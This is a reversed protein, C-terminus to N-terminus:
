TDLEYYYLIQNVSDYVALTYNWSGHDEMATPDTNKPHRNYFYWNGESIRPIVCNDNDDRCNFALHWFEPPAPLTHWNESDPLIVRGSLETYTEGDGHFGGHTEWSRLVSGRLISIQLNQSVAALLPINEGSVAYSIGNINLIDESKWELDMDQAYLFEGRWVETSDEFCGLLIPISKKENRVTVITAGGLAGQDSITLIATYGGAPSPYTNVVNDTRMMQVFGWIPLILALGACALASLGYCLWWYWRRAAKHMLIWGCVVCLFGSIGGMIGHFLLFVANLITSPLCWLLGKVPELKRLKYTIYVALIGFVTVTLEPVALVFPRHMLYGLGTCVPLFLQTLLFTYYFKKM